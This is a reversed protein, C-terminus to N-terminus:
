DLHQTFRILLAAFAITGTSHALAVVVTRGEAPSQSTRSEDPKLHDSVPTPNLSCTDAEEGLAKVGPRVSM